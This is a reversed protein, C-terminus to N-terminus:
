GLPRRTPRSKGGKGMQLWDHQPGSLPSESLAPGGPHSLVNKAGLGRSLDGLSLHQGFRHARCYQALKTM